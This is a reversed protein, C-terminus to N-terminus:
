TTIGDRWIGMEFYKNVETFTRAEGNAVKLILDLLEATLQEMSTGSFLRGADFDHWKRKRNFIDSNTSM